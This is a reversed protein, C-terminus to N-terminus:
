LETYPRKAVWEKVGPLELVKKRLAILNPCDKTIDFGAMYNLYDLIGVFYFDAWSLKGAALYGGNEKALNDLRPMIITELENLIATKKKEKEVEDPEYFFKDIKLKLDMATDAVMDIQLNEWDNDGVLGFQKGLYRSIALSQYIRKGDIELVPVQGFPMNPKISPWDKRDFRDDEFEIKGYSLLLRIPEGIAKSPYYTLKYKPAMKKSYLLLLVLAARRSAICVSSSRKWLPRSM